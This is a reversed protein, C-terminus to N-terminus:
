STMEKLLAQLQAESLDDLVAGGAVVGRSAPWEPLPSEAADETTTAGELAAAPAEPVQPTQARRWLLAASAAVVVVSAALAWRRAGVLFPARAARQPGVIRLRPAQEARLAALVEAQLTAPPQPASRALLQVVAADDRCAACGALHARLLGGEDGSVDGALLAPLRDRVRECDLTSM